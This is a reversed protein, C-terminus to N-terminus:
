LLPTAISAGQLELLKGLTGLAKPLEKVKCGIVDLGHRAIKDSAELDERSDFGEMIVVVIGRPYRLQQLQRISDEDASSVAVVSIGHPGRYSLSESVSPQPEARIRALHELVKHWTTLDAGVGGPWMRFQRGENFSYRALSAAIKIAYELTTERGWGLNVGPNLAMRVEGRPTQDFEKVMLQGSRASNRWHIHRLDDSQQFERSSRVEGSFSPRSFGTADGVLAGQNPAVELPLAKPYVTIEMPADIARVSRFLGFPASSEVELPPFSYRGRRYCTLEHSVVSSGRPPLAGILYGHEEKGPAACPFFERLTLVIKPLLSRHSLRIEVLLTDDEFLEVHKGDNFGKFHRRATLGRVNLPPLLLNLLLIALILPTAIYLWGIRTLYALTYLTGAIVLLSLGLRTPAM